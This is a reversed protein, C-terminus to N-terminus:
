QAVGKDPPVAYRAANIRPAISSRQRARQWAASIEALETEDATSVPFVTHAHHDFASEITARALHKPGQKVGKALLLRL